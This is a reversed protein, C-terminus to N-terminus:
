LGLRIKTIDRKKVEQVNEASEYKYIRCQEDVIYDKFMDIIEQVRQKEGTGIKYTHGDTKVYITVGDGYLLNKLAQRQFVTTEKVGTYDILYAPFTMESGDAILVKPVTARSIVKDFQEKRRLGPISSYDIKPIVVEEQKEEANLLEM